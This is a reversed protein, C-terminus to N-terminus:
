QEIFPILFIGINSNVVDAKPNDSDMWFIVEKVEFVELSKPHRVNGSAFCITDGKRPLVKFRAMMEDPKYKDRILGDEFETEQPFILLVDVGQHKPSEINAPVGTFFPHNALEIVEAKEKDTLEKM